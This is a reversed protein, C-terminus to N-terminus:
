RVIATKAVPPLPVLKGRAAALQAFASIERKQISQALALAHEFDARALAGFSADFDFLDVGMLGGVARAAEAANSKKEDKKEGKEADARSTKFETNNLSNIAARTVEFGRESDIRAVSAALLLLTQTKMEGDDLKGTLQLAEDVVSMAQATEKKEVFKQAIFAFIGARQFPDEIERASRLAKELEGKGVARTAMQVRVISRFLDRQKADAIREVLDLSKDEDGESLAKMAAQRYYLDKELPTKAKEAKQTLESVSMERDNKALEEREANSLGSTKEDLRQRVAAARAPLYKEYSPLLQRLTQLNTQASMVSMPDDSTPAANADEVLAGYAFELFNAAVNTNSTLMTKLQPNLDFMSRMMKATGGYDPLAYPALLSINLQLNERDRRAADLAENYLADSINPDKLRLAYLVSPFLFNLGGERLGRRAFEAARVTDVEVLNAALQMFYTARERAPDGFPSLSRLYKEAAANRKEAKADKADKNPTAGNADSQNANSEDPKNQTEDKSADKAAQPLTEILQAALKADRRAIFRLVESRLQTQPTGAFMLLFAM